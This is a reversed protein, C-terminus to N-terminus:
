PWTEPQGAEAQDAGSADSAEQEDLVWFPPDALLYAVRLDLRSWSLGDASVVLRLSHEGGTDALSLLRGSIEDALPVVREARLGQLEALAEPTLTEGDLTGTAPMFERPLLRPSVYDEAPAMLHHYFGDAILHIQGGTAVYRLDAIPETDGFRLLLGDLSLRARAPELGLRAAANGEPMSRFVETEAIGTLQEIRDGNAAVSYPSEMRWGGGDLVLAIPAEGPRELRVTEIGEPQLETLTTTRRERELERHALMSLLAVLLFLILNLTWRGRLM